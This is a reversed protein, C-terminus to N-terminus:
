ETACDAWKCAIPLNQSLALLTDPHPIWSLCWLLNRSVAVFRPRSLITEHGFEEPEDGVDAIPFAYVLSGDLEIVFGRFLPGSGIPGFPAACM